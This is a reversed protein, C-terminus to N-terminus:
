AAGRAALVQEALQLDDVSDVDVALEPEDLDCWTVRAHALKSLAAFAADVPLRGALYRLLVGPGLGLALTWPRKRRSELASWLHLVRHAAPAALYFLNSGCRGGDSFRLVTRRSEPFRDAVRAHDVLGVVLDARQERAVKAAQNCFEDIWEGRLLAHDATTLLLPYGAAQEAGAIASAAPGPAPAVRAIQTESLWRQITPDDLAAPGPGVLVIQQISSEALARLTWDIVPRGALDIILSSKTGRARALANGDHREGALVVAAIPPPPDCTM